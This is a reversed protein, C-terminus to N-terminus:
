ITVLRCICASCALLPRHHVPRPEAFSSSADPEAKSGPRHTFAAWLQRLTGWPLLAAALAAHRADPALRPPQLPAPVFVRWGRPSAAAALADPAPPAVPARSSSRWWACRPGFQEQSLGEGESPLLAKVKNWIQCAVWWLGATLGRQGVRVWAGM